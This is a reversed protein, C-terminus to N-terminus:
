ETAGGGTRSEHVGAHGGGLGDAHAGHRGSQPRCDGEARVDLTEDSRRDGTVSAKGLPKALGWDVVLTEGYAGLMVNGPKLDRHLVGRSHAYEVANCVDIMRALLRRLQLQDSPATWGSSAERHFRVIAQALSDGRIFRMVYFPRGDAYQGLGYIPVVGPHELRGTIEAEQLFRARSNPDDAHRDLLEKLAVERNLELDRAISVKGLGGAALPRLVRFRDRATM